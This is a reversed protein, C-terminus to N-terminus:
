TICFFFAYVRDVFAISQVKQLLSIQLVSGLYWSGAIRAPHLHSHSILPYSLPLLLSWTLCSCRRSLIYFKIDKQQVNRIWLHSTNANFMGTYIIVYPCFDLSFTYSFLRQFTCLGLYGRFLSFAGLLSRRRVSPVSHYITHKMGGPFSTTRFLHRHSRSTGAPKMVLTELPVHAISKIISRM